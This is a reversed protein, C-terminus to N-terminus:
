KGPRPSYVESTPSQAKQGVPLQKLSKSRERLAKNLEKDPAIPAFMTATRVKVYSKDTESVPSEPTISKDSSSNASSSASNHNSSHTHKALLAKLKSFLSPSSKREEVKPQNLIFDPISKKKNLIIEANLEELMEKTIEVIRRDLLKEQAINGALQAQDRRRALLENTFYKFLVQGYSKELHETLDPQAKEILSRIDPYKRALEIGQKEFEELKEQTKSLDALLVKNIFKASTYARTHIERLCSERVASDKAQIFNKIVDSLTDKNAQHQQLKLREYFQMFEDSGPKNAITLMLSKLIAQAQSVRATSKTVSSAADSFYEALDPHQKASEVFEACRAKRAELIPDNKEGKVTSITPRRQM